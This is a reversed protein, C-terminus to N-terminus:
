RREKTVTNIITKIDEFVETKWTETARDYPYRKYKYGKEPLLSNVEADHKYITPHTHVPGDLYFCYFSHTFYIDPHTVFPTGERMDLLVDINKLPCDNLTKSINYANSLRIYIDVDAQSDYGQHSDTGRYFSMRRNEGKEEPPRPSPRELYTFGRNSIYPNSSLIGLWSKRWISM